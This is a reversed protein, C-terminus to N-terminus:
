EEYLFLLYYNGRKCTGVITEDIYFIHFDQLIFQKEYNSGNETSKDDEEIEGFLNCIQKYFLEEELKKKMQEDSLEFDSINRNLDIIIENRNKIYYDMNCSITIHFKEIANQISIEKFEQKSTIFQPFYVFMNDLKERSEFHSIKIKSIHFNFDGIVNAKLKNTIVHDREMDFNEFSEIEDPCCGNKNIYVDASYDINLIRPAGTLQYNGCELKEKISMAAQVEIGCYVKFSKKKKKKLPTAL